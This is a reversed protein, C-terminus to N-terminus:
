VCALLLSPRSHSCSAQIHTRAVSAAGRGTRSGTAASISPGCATPPRADRGGVGLRALPIAIETNWWGDQQTHAQQFGGQWSPEETVAGLVHVNYGGKGLSNCLFQYDVRSVADPRPCVFIEAADDYVAKLSDTKM